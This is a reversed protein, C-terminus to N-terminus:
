NQLRITSYVYGFTRYDELLFYDTHVGDLIISVTTTHLKRNNDLFNKGLTYTKESNILLTVFVDDRYIDCMDYGACHEIPPRQIDWVNIKGYVRFSMRTDICCKSLIRHIVPLPVIM